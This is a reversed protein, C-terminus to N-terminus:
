SGFLGSLDITTAPMAALEIIGPDRREQQDAYDDGRPNRCVQLVFHEVDVIWLEPVGARAYLPLKVQVDLLLTSDSVEVALLVDAPQPKSGRYLDARPRLIAFDPQLQTRDGLVLPNQVAVVAANGLAAVFRRTLDNVTGAHRSGIPAMDIVEGDILEVRAKPAFVGAKGMRLFDAVTFRHTRCNVEAAGDMM